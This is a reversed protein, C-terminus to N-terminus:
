KLSWTKLAVSSVSDKYFIINTMNTKQSINYEVCISKQKEIFNFKASLHLKICEIDKCRSDKWLRPGAEFVNLYATAVNTIFLLIFLLKILRDLTAAFSSSLFPM